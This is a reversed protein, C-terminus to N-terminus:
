SHSLLAIDRVLYVEQLVPHKLLSQARPRMDPDRHLCLEIFERKKKHLGEVARLVAEQKPSTHGHAGDGNGLLEFNLM